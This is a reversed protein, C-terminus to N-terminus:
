TCANWNTSLSASNTPGAIQSTAATPGVTRAAASSGTSNVRNAWSVGTCNRKAVVSVTVSGVVTSSPPAGRCSTGPSYGTSAPM